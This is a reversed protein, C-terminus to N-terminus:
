VLLSMFPASEVLPTNQFEKLPNPFALSAPILRYSMCFSMTTETVRLTKGEEMGADRDSIRVLSISTEPDGNVSGQFIGFLVFRAVGVTDDLLLIYQNSELYEKLKKANIRSAFDRTTTHTGGGLRKLTQISDNMNVGNLNNLVSAIFEAQSQQLM